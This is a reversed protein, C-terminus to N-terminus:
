DEDERQGDLNGCLGCVAGAYATSVRVTVRSRRRVDCAPGRGGVAGCRRGGDAPGSVCGRSVPVPLNTLEGDVTVRGAHVRSMSITQGHVTVWVQRTYSVRRNGRNENQVRVDYPVLGTGNACLRSLTYICTGQFNYNVGDFTHYHPDGSASCTAYATPQCGRVGRRVACREKNGCKSKSCQFRGSLPHCQCWTRCEADKWFTEGPEYYRGEHLCGCRSAPVCQGSNRVYGPDCACTEVCDRRCPANGLPDACSRPCANGCAEYHSNERALSPPSPPFTPSAPPSLSPPFLLTSPPSCSHPNWWADGLSERCNATTRWGIVRVGAAHCM